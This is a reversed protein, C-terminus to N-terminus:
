VGKLPPINNTELPIKIGVEGQIEAETETIAAAINRKMINPEIAEMESIKALMRAYKNDGYLNPENSM